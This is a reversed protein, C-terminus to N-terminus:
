LLLVPLTCSSRLAIAHVGVWWNLQVQSSMCTDWVNGEPTDKNCQYQWAAVGGLMIVWAAVDLLYLLAVFNSRQVMTSQRAFRCCVLVVNSDVSAVLVALTSWHLHAHTDVDLVASCPVTQCFEAM